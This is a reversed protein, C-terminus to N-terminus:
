KGGIFHVSCIAADPPPNFNKRSMAALWIRHKDTKLPIRYFKIGKACNEQTDRNTCGIVSCSRVMKLKIKLRSTIGGCAKAM